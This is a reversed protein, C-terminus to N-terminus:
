KRLDTTRFLLTSQVAQVIYFFLWNVKRRADFPFSVKMEDATLM